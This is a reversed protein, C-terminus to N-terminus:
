NFPPVVKGIGKVNIKLKSELTHVSTYLKGEFIIYKFFLGVFRVELNEMLLVSGPHNRTLLKDETVAVVYLLSNWVICCASVTYILLKEFCRNLLISANRESCLLCTKTEEKSVRIM